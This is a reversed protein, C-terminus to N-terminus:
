IVRTAVWVMGVIGTAALAAVMTSVGALLSAGIFWASHTEQM